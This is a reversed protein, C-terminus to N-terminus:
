MGSSLFFLTLIAVGMLRSLNDKLAFSVPDDHMENRWTLLWIRTLWVFLLPSIFYLIEYNEYPTLLRVSDIYLTFVLISIYGSSVGSALLIPLDSPSYGRGEIKIEPNTASKLEVVRKIIALSFFLFMAFSILWNSLVIGTAAGGALIRISYLLALTAVDFVMVKKIWFSYMLTLSYYIVLIIIFKIPLLLSCIGSILLLISTALVGSLLSIKGSALPRFRKKKHKRDAELDLLDNLLYVSSACLSFTIFAFISKVLLEADYFQHAAIFPVFILLNKAWQHVRLQKVWTSLSSKETTLKKIINVEVKKELSEPLNVIIANNSKEWVKIDDKSNGAYDFKGQGIEEVLKKAKKSSSLNTTKDSALVKDFLGLHQAISNAVKENAATCLWVERGKLKEDKIFDIVDQNYPLISANLCVRSSIEHKLVSKGKILWFIFYFLYCPNKKVLLLATEVLTDTHVLTGDLDICLPTSKQEM